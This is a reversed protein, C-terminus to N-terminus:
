LGSTSTKTAADSDSPDLPTSTWSKPESLRRSAKSPSGKQAPADRADYNFSPYQPLAPDSQYAASYDFILESQSLVKKPRSNMLKLTLLKEQLEMERQKHYYAQQQQHHYAAQQQYSQPAVYRHQRHLARQHRKEHVVYADVGKVCGRRFMSVEQHRHDMTVDRLPSAPLYPDKRHTQQLPAGKCPGRSGCLFSQEIQEDSMQQNRMVMMDAPNLRSNVDPADTAESLIGSDCSPTRPMVRVNQNTPLVLGAVNKSQQLNNLSASASIQQTSVLRRNPLIQQGNAMLLSSRNSGNHRINSGSSAKIIPHLRQTPQRALSNDIIPRSVENFTNRHHHYSRPPHHYQSKRDSSSNTPLSNSSGGLSLSKSNALMVVNNCSSSNTSSMGSSISSRASSTINENSSHHYTKDNYPMMNPPLSHRNSNNKNDMAVNSNNNGSGREKTSSARKGSLSGSSSSLNPSSPGVSNSHRSKKNGERSGEVTLAMMKRLARPSTAGFKPLSTIPVKKRTPHLTVANVHQIHTQEPKKEPKSTDVSTITSRSSSLSSKSMRSPSDSGAKRKAQSSGIPTNPEALKSLEDLKDEDMIVTVKKMFQRVKRQNIQDEYMRRANQFSSRRVRRSLTQYASSSDKGGSGGQLQSAQAASPLIQSVEPACQRCVKRVESAIMRMKEFNILGEIKTDNGLHLFTLDKKMIPIYPILPPNHMCEALLTRYKSMNRSPDMLAELEKFNRQTKQSLKEWSQKMRSVARYMLGSAIAFTSNLNKLTKCHHAIAIFHKIIKARQIYSEENCLMTVVWFQEDNVLAEFKMLPKKEADLDFLDNVYHTAETDKFIKYDTKSLYL